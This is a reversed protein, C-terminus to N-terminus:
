PSAPTFRTIRLDVEDGVLNKDYDIYLQRPYGLSEDYRVRVEAGAREAADILDFLGDITWYLDLSGDRAPVERDSDEHLHYVRVVKGGRVTVVTEPPNDPHCACYKNYGYAYDAIAAAQWRARHEAADDSPAAGGATPLLLAGCLAVFSGARAAHRARPGSISHRLNM